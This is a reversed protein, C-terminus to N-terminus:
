GEDSDKERKCAENLGLRQNGLPWLSGYLRLVHCITVDTHSKNCELIHWLLTGYAMPLGFWFCAFLRTMPLGEASISHWLISSSPLHLTQCYAPMCYKSMPNVLVETKVM